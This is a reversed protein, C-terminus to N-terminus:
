IKVRYNISNDSILNEEEVIYNILIDQVERPDNELIKDSSYHPFNGGGIARYNNTTVIFTEDSEM